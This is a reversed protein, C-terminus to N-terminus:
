SNHCAKRRIRIAIPIRSKCNLTAQLQKCFINLCEGVTFCLRVSDAHDTVYKKGLNQKVAARTKVNSYNASSFMKAKSQSANPKTSAAIPKGKDSITLHNEYISYFLM